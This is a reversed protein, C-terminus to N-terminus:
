ARLERVRLARKGLGKAKSGSVWDSAHFGFAQLGKFFRQGGLCEIGFGYM